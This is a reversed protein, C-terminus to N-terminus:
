CCRGSSDSCTRPQAAQVSTASPEAYKPRGKAFAMRCYQLTGAEVLARVRQLLDRVKPLDIDTGPMLGAFRAMGAMLLKRKLDATLRILAETEDVYSVVRLGHELFLRQYDAVARAGAVCTWPAVLQALDEPLTGEVAMDSIGVVGGDTLVRAFEAVAKPQEPFTSFACECTVADFHADPFPLADASGPVFEVLVPPEEASHDRAKDLNAESVDLGVPELGFKRAMMLTTTGIGCAVDLVRAGSPLGLSRVLRASLELNGPHFSDGLILRVWEQEYFRACCATASAVGAREANNAEM